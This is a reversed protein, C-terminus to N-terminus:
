QPKRVQGISRSDFRAKMDEDTTNQDGATKLKKRPGEGGTAPRKALPAEERHTKEWLRHQKELEEGWDLILEGARKHIQRYVPITKDAEVKRRLRKQEENEDEPGEPLDGVGLRQLVRYHNQLDPNPYKEPNYRGRPLQLQRMIDRMCDVLSYPAAVTSVDPNRRIDDAFPLPILWLGQPVIQDGDDGLREDGPILAVVSPIANRRAIFWAIAMKGGKRLKQLLASFARTSGTYGEESPYLLTPAKTNAWLPLTDGTHSRFGIIRLIPEGFNRITEIDKPTFPIQTGGFRYAKRIQAKEVPRATDQELKQTVPKVLQQEVGDTWIWTMQKKEQRKFIIFGKISITLDPGIELSLNSFLARRPVARSKVSSLLSSFLTTGDGAQSVKIPNFLPAPAKPDKPKEDSKVINKYFRSRDFSEGPKAIPFLEIVVGLNRLDNGRTGANEDKQKDGKHPNDEDTILFLRRSAFNAAKVTFLDVAFRLVESLPLSVQAPTTLDKLKESDDILAKVAKVEDASPVEFDTLLYCNRVTSNEFAQDESLKTGETGYLLIAMTDSPNSIIRQTMVDYACKLAGLLPSDKGNGADEEQATRMSESVSIAFLVADKPHKYYQAM